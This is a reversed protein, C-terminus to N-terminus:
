TICVIFSFSVNRKVLETQFFKNLRVIDTKRIELQSPNLSNYNFDKFSIRGGAGRKWM